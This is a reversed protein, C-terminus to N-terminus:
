IKSLKTFSNWLVSHANADCGLILQLNKAQCYDIIQQIVTPINLKIDFYASCIIIKQNGSKHPIEISATVVDKTCFQILPTYQFGKKFVICARPTVSNQSDYLICNKDLGRIINKTQYPEIDIKNTTIKNNCLDTAGKSHHLNIQLFKLSSKRNSM